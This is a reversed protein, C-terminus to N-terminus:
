EIVEKEQNKNKNNQNYDMPVDVEEEESEYLFPEIDELEIGWRMFILTKIYPKFRNFIHLKKKNIKVEDMTSFLGSSIMQGGESESRFFVLPLDCAMAFDKMFDAKADITFEPKQPFISRIEKLVLEKAGVGSSSSAIDLANKLSTEQDPSIGDGYVSHLFGSTKASNNAIDLQAYRLRVALTWKDELDFEGFRDESPAVGYPILLGYSLNDDLDTLTMDPTFLTITDKFNKFKNDYPLSRSFEVYVRIPTNNDDYYIEKIERDCYVRWYPPENYLSVVSFSHVRSKNMFKTCLYAWREHDWDESIDSTPEITEEEPEEIPTEETPVVNGDGNLLKLVEEDEQQNGFINPTTIPKESWLEEDITKIYKRIYPDLRLALERHQWNEHDEIMFWILDDKYTFIGYADAIGSIRQTSGM